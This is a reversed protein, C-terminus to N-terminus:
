SRKKAPHVGEERWVLIGLLGGAEVYAGSEAVRRCGWRTWSGMFVNEQDALARPWPLHM